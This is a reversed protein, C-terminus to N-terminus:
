LPVGSCVVVAQTEDQFAKVILGFHTLTELLGSQTNLLYNIFGHCHGQL